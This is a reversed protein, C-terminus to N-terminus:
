RGCARRRRGYVSMVRDLDIDRALAGIEIEQSHPEQSSATM